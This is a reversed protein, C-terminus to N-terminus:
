RCIGIVMTSKGYMSITHCKNNAKAQEKTQLAWTPHISIIMEHLSMPQHTSGQNRLKEGGVPLKWYWVMSQVWKCTAVLYKYTCQQIIHLSHNNRTGMFPPLYGTVGWIAIYLHYINGIPDLQTIIHQRGGILPVLFSWQHLALLLKVLKWSQFAQVIRSLYRQITRIWLDTGAYMLLVDGCMDFCHCGLPKM